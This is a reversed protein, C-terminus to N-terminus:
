LGEREMLKVTQDLEEYFQNAKVAVFAADPHDQYHKRDEFIRWLYLAELAAIDRWRRYFNLAKSARDIELEDSKLFRERGLAHVEEVDWGFWDCVLGVQAMIDGLEGKLYGRYALAKDPYRLTYTGWKVAMGTEYALTCLIEHLTEEPHVDLLEWCLNRRDKVEGGQTEPVAAVREQLAHLEERKARLM